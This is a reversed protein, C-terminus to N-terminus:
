CEGNELARRIRVRGSHSKISFKPWRKKCKNKRKVFEM